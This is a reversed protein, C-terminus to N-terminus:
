IGQSTTNKSEYTLSTASQKTDNEPNTAFGLYINEDYTVHSGEPHWDTHKPAAGANVFINGRITAVGDARDLRLPNADEAIIFTNCAISADPNRPIDIAGMRDRDSVNHHFSSRVAKENCFMVCGGSNNRSYNHRYTTGDGYDADWAQGDGNGRDANLTDYAENLEFLANKCRWPWIAAAVKDNGTATYIEDCIQAAAERSVNRRVIPRDCYMVTIADGGAHEVTNGEVLVNTAGYTHILEDDITGDGYDFTNNWNGDADRGGHDIMNLYATYGVAIGWRSTNRVHNDVIRIGDFRAIDTRIRAPDEPFHAICYIGGNAMHKDYVNGDVDHVDLRQLTIGRTTGANEAIVAVGTRDMADLDNFRMGDADDTRRNTIELDHVWIHSCDRLLLATSVTGHNRHPSGGIPARYDEHWQGAGNCEIAPKPLDPDGYCGITVPKDSTGHVNTLHLSEGQFRSGRELLIEDGPSFEIERLHALTCRVTEPGQPPQTDHLTSCYYISM